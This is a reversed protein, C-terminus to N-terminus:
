KGQNQRRQDSDKSSLPVELRIPHHVGLIEVIAMRRAKDYQVSGRPTRQGVPNPHIVDQPSVEVSKLVRIQRRDVPNRLILRFEWQPWKEPDYGAMWIWWFSPHWKRTGKSYLQLLGLNTESEQELRGEIDWGGGGSLGFLGWLFGERSDHVHLTKEQSRYEGPTSGSRSYFTLEVYREAVLLDEWLAEAEERSLSKATAQVAMLCFVMLALIGIYRRSPM